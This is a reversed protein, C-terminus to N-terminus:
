MKEKGPEEGNKVEKIEELGRLLAKAKLIRRENILDFMENIQEESIKYNKM